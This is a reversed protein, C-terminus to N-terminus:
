SAFGGRSLKYTVRLHVRVRVRVRVASPSAPRRLQRGLRHHRLQRRGRQLEHAREVM